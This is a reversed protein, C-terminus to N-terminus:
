VPVGEKRLVSLCEVMRAFTPESLRILVRRGDEPDPERVLFGREVMGKIWRLGTTIPVAAAICLSSASVAVGEIRAATLDLLIDWAPDSFLEPPFFGDRLRRLRVLRRIWPADLETEARDNVALPLQAALKSLAHSIRAAEESLESLTPAEPVAFRHRVEGVLQVIETPARSGDIYDVWRYGLSMGVLDLNDPRVILMLRLDRGGSVRWDLEALLDPVTFDEAKAVVLGILPDTDIAELLETPSLAASRDKDDNLAPAIEDALILARRAVGGQRVRDLNYSDTVVGNNERGM